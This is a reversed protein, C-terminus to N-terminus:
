RNRMLYSLANKSLLTVKEFSMITVLGLLNAAPPLWQAVTLAPKKKKLLQNRIKTLASLQGVMAAFKPDDADLAQMDNLVHEIAKDIGSIDIQPTRAM